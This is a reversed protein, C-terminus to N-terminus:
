ANIRNKQKNSQSTALMMFDDAESSCIMVFLATSPNITESKTAHARHHANVMSEICHSKIKHM